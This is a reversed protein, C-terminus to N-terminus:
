SQNLVTVIKEKVPAEFHLTEFVNQRDTQFSQHPACHHHCHQGREETRQPKQRRVVCGHIEESGQSHGIAKQASDANPEYGSQGDSDGVDFLSTDVLKRDGKGKLFLKPIVLRFM